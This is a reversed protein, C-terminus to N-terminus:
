RQYLKSVLLNRLERLHEQVRTRTSLVRRMCEKWHDLVQGPLLWWRTAVM